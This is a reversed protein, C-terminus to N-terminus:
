RMRPLTAVAASFLTAMRLKLQSLRDVDTQDIRAIGDEVIGDDGINTPPM